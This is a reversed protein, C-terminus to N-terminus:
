FYNEEYCSCSRCYCKYIEPVFSARIYHILDGTISPLLSLITSFLTHFITLLTHSGSPIMLICLFSYSVVEYSSSFFGLCTALRLTSYSIVIIKTLVRTAM